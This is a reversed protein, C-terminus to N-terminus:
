FRSAILRAESAITKPLKTQNVIGVLSTILPIFCLFWGVALGIIKWIWEEETFSLSLIDNNKICSVTISEGLGLIMNIGGTNKEITVTANEQNIVFNAEYGRMRFSDCLAGAFVKMDFADSVNILTNDAM